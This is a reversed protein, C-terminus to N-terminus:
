REVRARVAALSAAAAQALECVDARVPEVHETKLIQGDVVVTDVDSSQASRVVTSVPDSSPATNWTDTRILVVDARKGPTISGTVADRGLDVAGGITALELM